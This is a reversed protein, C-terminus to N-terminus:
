GEETIRGLHYVCFGWPGLRTADGPACEHRLMTGEGGFEPAESDLVKTWGPGGGAAPSLPTAPLVADVVGASVNFLAAVADTGHSRVLTVV